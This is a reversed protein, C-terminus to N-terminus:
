KRGGGKVCHSLSAGNFAKPLTARWRLCLLRILLALKELQDVTTEINRSSEQKSAKRGAESAQMGAGMRVSNSAQMGADM